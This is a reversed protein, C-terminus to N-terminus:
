IYIYIIRVIYIMTIIIFMKPQITVIISCENRNDYKTYLVHEMNNTHANYKPINNIHNHAPDYKQLVEQRDQVREHRLEAGERKERRRRAIQLACALASSSLAYHQLM